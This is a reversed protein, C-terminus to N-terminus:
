APSWGPVNLRVVTRLCDQALPMSEHLMTVNGAYTIGACFQVELLSELDLHSCDGGKGPDGSIEGSWGRCASVDSALMIAETPWKGSKLMETSHGHCSINTVHRPRDPPTTGHRPSPTGHAEVAPMWFGDIHIGGRRHTNGAHVFGQDVMLYIPGDTDVGELMADVTSQWRSIDAPLGATKFFERMYIREGIHSPFTVRGRKEVISKM